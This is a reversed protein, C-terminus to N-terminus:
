ASLLKLLKIQFIYRIYRKLDANKKLKVIKTMKVKTQIRTRVGMMWVTYGASEKSNRKDYQLTIPYM